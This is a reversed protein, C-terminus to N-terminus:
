LRQSQSLFNRLRSLTLEMDFLVFPKGWENCMSILKGHKRAYEIRNEKVNKIYEKSYGEEDLVTLIVVPPTGSPIREGGTVVSLIWIIIGVAATFAM